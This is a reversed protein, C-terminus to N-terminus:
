IDLIASEFEFAEYLQRILAAMGFKFNSDEDM